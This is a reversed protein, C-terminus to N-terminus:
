MHFNMNIAVYINKEENTGNFCGDKNIIKSKDFILKQIIRPGTIDMVHQSKNPINNLINNNVISLVDM